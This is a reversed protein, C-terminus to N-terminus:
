DMFDDFREELSDDARNYYDYDDNFPCDLELPVLSVIELQADCGSCILRYGVKMQPGIYLNERCIPCQAYNLSKSRNRGNSSGHEDYYIWDLEIPDTKVVELLAECTPCTTRELFKVKKGFNIKEECIPCHAKNM